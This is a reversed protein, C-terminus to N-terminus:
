LYSSCLVFQFFLVSKEHPSSWIAQARARLTRGPQRNWSFSNSSPKQKPKWDSYSFIMRCHPNKFTNQYQSEPVPKWLLRLFCPPSDLTNLVSHGFSCKVDLTSMSCPGIMQVWAKYITKLSTLEKFVRVSLVSGGAVSNRDLKLVCVM